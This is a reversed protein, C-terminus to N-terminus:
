DTDPTNPDNELHDSDAHDSVSKGARRGECSCVYRNNRSVSRRGIEPQHISDMPIVHLFRQIHVLVPAAQQSIRSGRNPILYKLFCSSLMKLAM